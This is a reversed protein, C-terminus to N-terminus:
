RGALSEGPVTADTARRTVWYWLATAFILNLGLGLLGVEPGYIHTQEIGLAGIKEGFGYLPYAIGNWVAHCVSAVVVSGSVMRLMGFVAGILTANVLYIPIEAAPVDFGTDLSIASVHWLTFALSTWVLVQGESQGARRLAAWLWGRFFGEETLVVAIIGTSSMLAINLFAKNWDTSSTDIAGRALAIVAILGLILLPYALALGYYRRDGWVLGIERRSFKQLFWFIGVLPLLPLASFMALGSADMSTTIVIAILVGAAASLSARNM